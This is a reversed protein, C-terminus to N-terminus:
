PEGLDPVTLNEVIDSQNRRGMRRSQFVVLDPDSVLSPLNHIPKVVMVGVVMVGAELEDLFTSQEYILNIPINCRSISKHLLLNLQKM